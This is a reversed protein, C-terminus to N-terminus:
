MQRGAGRVEHAIVFNCRYIKLEKEKETITCLSFLTCHTCQTRTSKKRRM